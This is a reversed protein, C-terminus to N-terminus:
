DLPQRSHSLCRHYLDKNGTCTGAVVDAGCEPTVTVKIRTTRTSNATDVLTVDKGDVASATIDLGDGRDDATVPGSATIAASAAGATDSLGYSVTVKDAQVRAEYPTTDSRFAPSLSVGALGLSSLNANNSLTQNNRYVKVTYTNTNGAPATVVISITTTRGAAVAVNHGTGSAVVTGNVRITQSQNGTLGTLDTATPTVVVGSDTFGLRFTYDNEDQDYAATGDAQTLQEGTLEAPAPGAVVALGDSSALKAEASLTQAHALEPEAVFLTM